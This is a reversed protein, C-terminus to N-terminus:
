RIKEEIARCVDVVPRQFREMRTWDPARLFLKNDPTARYAVWTDGIQAAHKAGDHDWGRPMVGLLPGHIVIDREPRALQDLALDILTVSGIAIVVHGTGEEDGTAAIAWARADDWWAKLEDRTEPVRGLKEIQAIYGPSYATVDCPVPRARIGYRQLALIGVRASAICSKPGWTERIIPRATDVLAEVVARDRANM